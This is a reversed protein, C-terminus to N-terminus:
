PRSSRQLSNVGFAVTLLSLLAFGLPGLAPVPNPGALDMDIRVGSTGIFGGAGGGIHQFDDFGGLSSQPVLVADGGASTAPQEGM